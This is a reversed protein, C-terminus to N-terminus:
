GVGYYMDEWPLQDELIGLMHGNLMYWPGQYESRM